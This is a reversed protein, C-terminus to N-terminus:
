SASAPPPAPRPAVRTGQQLRSQGDIVLTEGGSLGATIESQTDDQYGAQVTRREATGNPAVVYVFLGDPGHQVAQRPVVVVNRDTALRVRATVFQGPWLTRDTNAFEAKLSITGTSTDITNDPTVLRGTALPAAAAGTDAAYALVETPGSALAAVVRPLLDQPVTFVVAIPRVQTVTAIPQTSGAQVLNGADVRRFGVVGDFPATIRCFELNLNAAAIAAQDGEIAAQANRTQATDTDVQQHSAFDNRALATDRRLTAGANALTAQDGALKAQAQALAAAYPRPDIMALLDGAHVEQGETFNVSQLIGTVEPRLSVTRWAQVTGIGGAYVPMDRRTVPQVIVPVGAAQPHVDQSKATGSYLLAPVALAAMIVAGALLRGQWCKM